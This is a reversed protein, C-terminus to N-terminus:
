RSAAPLFSRLFFTLNAPREALRRMFYGYWDTGYPLYVRVTRGEGALRRQEEARIGYLMQVEWSTDPRRLDDALRTAAALMRPDHSGVMPYGDGRMLIELCEEYADDIEARGQHAVSAPEAYAGKVLRVRSGAGALDRCDAPTRRLMAQVVAGVSPTYVRLSRVLDLTADVTPSGEMDVTVTTGVATAAAVVRGALDHALGPDLLLGLATPKVSVECRDALGADALGGLLTIYAEAVAVAQEPRSTDEGLHDVTVHLGGAVLERVAGLAEATTEGAVFREVVRRTPPAAVVLSRARPSRSAALLAPALLSM